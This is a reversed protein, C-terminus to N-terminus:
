QESAAEDFSWHEVKEDSFEGVLNEGDYVLLRGLEKKVHTAPIKRLGDEYKVRLNIYKAM